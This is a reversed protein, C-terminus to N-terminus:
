ARAVLRARSKNRHLHREASKAPRTVLRLAQGTKAAHVSGATLFERFADADLPCAVYYGQALDCRYQTLLALQLENEVGEAVVKLDLKHAMETM